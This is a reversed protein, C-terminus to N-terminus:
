QLAEVALTSFRGTLRDLAADANHLSLLTDIREARSASLVRQAESIDLYSFGGQAYGERALRLAREAEPLINREITEVATRLALVQQELALVERQIRRLVVAAEADAKREEAAAKAIGGANRDYLGLPMSFGAVLGTDSSAEFRRVGLSITPDTFRRARELRAVAEAREVSLKAREIDPTRGAHNHAPELALAVIPLADAGGVLAALNAKATVAEQRARSLALSADALGAAARAGAMLPDRAAAVRRDVAKKIEEAAAAREEAIDVHAEAAAAAFCARQVEAFLDLVAIEADLEAARTDAEAVGIRAGRRGGRELTQSLRLTTEAAAFGESAGQGGFNEAEIELSPNPRVRAQLREAAAIDRGAQAASIRPDAGAARRLIDELQLAIGTQAAASPTNVALAAWIALWAMYLRPAAAASRARNFRSTM